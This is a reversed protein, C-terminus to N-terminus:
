ESEGSEDQITAAPPRPAEPPNGAIKTSEWLDDFWAPEEPGAVSDPDPLETGSLPEGDELVVWPTEGPTVYGLHERAYQAVFAPDEWRAQERKLDDIAVQAEAIQQEHAEIDNRQELYARLSSAYSVALVALVLVLVAMRGTFRSRTREERRADERLAARERSSQRRLQQARAADRHGHARGPPRKEESM